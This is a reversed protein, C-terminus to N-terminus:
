KLLKIVLVIASVLLCFWLVSQVMEPLSSFAIMICTGLATFASGLGVIFDPLSKFLDSFNLSSGTSDTTVNGDYTGKITVNLDPAIYNYDNYNVVDTYNSFTIIDFYNSLYKIKAEKEPNSSNKNIIYYIQNTQNIFPTFDINKVLYNITSFTDYKYAYPDNNFSYYTIFDGLFKVSSNLKNTKPILGVAYKGTMDYETYLSDDYVSTPMNLTLYKSNYKVSLIATQEDTLNIVFKVAKYGKDYSGLTDTQFRYGNDVKTFNSTSKVFNTGDKSFYIKSTITGDVLISFNMYDYDTRKYCNDLLLSECKYAKDGILATIELTNNNLGSYTYTVTVDDDYKINEIPPTLSISHGYTNPFNSNSFVPYDYYSYSSSGSLAWSSYMYYNKYQPSVGNPYTSVIFESNSYLIPSVITLNDFTSFDKYNLGLEKTASAVTYFENDKYYGEANDLFDYYKVNMSGWDYSIGENDIKSVESTNFNVDFYTLYPIAIKFGSSSAYGLSIYLSYDIPVLYVRYHVGGPGYTVFYSFNTSNIKQMIVEEVFSIQSNTLPVPNTVYDFNVYTNTISNNASVSFPMVMVFAFILYILIKKINM